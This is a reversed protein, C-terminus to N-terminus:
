EKGVVSSNLMAHLLNFSSYMLSATRSFQGKEEPEPMETIRITTVDAGVSLSELVYKLMCWNVQHVTHATPALALLRVPM